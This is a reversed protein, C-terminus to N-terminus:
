EEKGDEEKNEYYDEISDYKYIQHKICDECYPSIWGQTIYKAPKGCEICTRFSLEEYKHIIDYVEQPAGSDYWRLTGYKEKIDMIRYAKLLKRGGVKLLADKIEQCMQLGFANRWGIPMNDLETYQPIIFPLQMIGDHLWLLFRGWLYLVRDPYRWTFPRVNTDLTRGKNICDYGYSRFRWYTHYCESFRNRPILFPYKWCLHITEIIKSLKREWEHFMTKLRCKFM